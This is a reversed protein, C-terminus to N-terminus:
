RLLRYRCLVRVCTFGGRDGATKRLWNDKRKTCLVNMRDRLHILLLFQYARGNVHARAFANENKYKQFYVLGRTKRMRHMGRGSAAVRHSASAAHAPNKLTKSAVSAPLLSPPPHLLTARFCVCARKRSAYIKYKEERTCRADRATGRSLM